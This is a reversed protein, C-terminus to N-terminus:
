DAGRAHRVVALVVPRKNIERKTVLPLPPSRQEKCTVVLLACHVPDVAVVRVAHQLDCGVGMRRGGGEERRGGGEERRGGGL